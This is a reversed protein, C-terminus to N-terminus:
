ISNNFVQFRQEIARNNVVQYVSLPSAYSKSFGDDYVCVRRNSDVGNHRVLLAGEGYPSPNPAGAIVLANDIRGLNTKTESGNVTVRALSGCLNYGCNYIAGDGGIFVSNRECASIAVIDNLSPIAGMNPSTSTGSMVSRGLVGFKNYGCSMVTGDAKLFFSTHYGASMSVVDTIDPTQGIACVDEGVRGLEGYFNSGCSWVTGDERLFLSHMCNQGCASIAKVNSLGPIKALNSSTESGYRANPNGLQGYKREGCSFVEGTNQLFLSHNGGAAIATIGELNPILGLNTHSSTVNRGLQGNQNWGVSMVRGDSLLFLMFGYGIAVQVVNSLNPITSIEHKANGVFGYVTHFCGCTSVKGDNHLFASICPGVAVATINDLGPIIGLNEIAESGSTVIRGLQGKGNDGCSLVKGSNLLILTHGHTAVQKVHSSHMQFINDLFIRSPRVADPVHIGETVPTEGGVSINWGNAKAGVGARFFALGRSADFVIEVTAGSKVVDDPAPDNTQTRAALETGGIALTNGARYDAEMTVRVTLTAPSPAPFGPITLDHRTGSTVCTADYIGANGALQADAEAKTYHNAAVDSATVKTAVDARVADLETDLATGNYSIAAAPHQDAADRNQLQSHDTGAKGAMQADIESKDYYGDAVEATTPRELVSARVADLEVDLAAGNYTIAGAPHQGAAARNELAAHDTGAKGAMQADIESKGYYGDAVEATTPRELVSARVADLEVNLAAGNYTIAEAPHQGAADRNDLAAHDTGAKAAMQADIESKGYYGEAVQAATLRDAIDTKMTNLQANLPAGNYSIAKALHQNPLDRNTLQSHDGGGMAALQSDIENKDYYGDAVQAITPREAIDAKITDLQQNLPVGSYVISKAMHQNPENRNILQSHDNTSM